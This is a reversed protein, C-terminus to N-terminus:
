LQGQEGESAMRGRFCGAEHEGRSLWTRTETYVGAQEEGGLSQNERGQNSVLAPWLAQSAKEWAM